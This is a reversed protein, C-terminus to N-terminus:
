FVSRDILNVWKKVSDLAEVPAGAFLRNTGAAIPHRLKQMNTKCFTVFYFNDQLVMILFEFPFVDDTHIDSCPRIHSRTRSAIQPQWCFVTSLFCSELSAMVDLGCVTVGGSV